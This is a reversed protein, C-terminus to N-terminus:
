LIDDKLICSYDHIESIRNFSFCRHYQIPIISGKIDTENFVDLFQFENGHKHIYVNNHFIKNKLEQLKNKIYLANGFFLSLDHYGGSTIENYKSFTVEINDGNQDLKVYPNSCVECPIIVSDDVYMGNFFTKKVVDFNCYSDGWQIFCKDDNCLFLEDLAKLVADGCGNGSNIIIKRYKDFYKENENSCVVFIKDCYPMLHEVNYDLLSKKGIKVLSKPFEFEFRLQKGASIILGYIM